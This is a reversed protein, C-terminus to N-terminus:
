APIIDILAELDSFKTRLTATDATSRTSYDEELNPRDFTTGRIELNAEIEDLIADMAVLIAQYEQKINVYIAATGSGTTLDVDSGGGETASVTMTTSGITRGWFHDTETLGGPLTGDILKLKLRHDTKFKHNAPLGTITDNGADINTSSNFEYYLGRHKAYDDRLDPATAIDTLRVEANAFHHWVVRIVEDSVPGAAMAIRNTRATREGNVFISNIEDLLAPVSKGHSISTPAGPNVM